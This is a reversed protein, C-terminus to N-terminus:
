RVLAYQMITEQTAEEKTLTATLKGASFVMIRDCLGLLEPMETSYIIVALGQAAMKNIFQYIEFKAGVDVGRTPEELILVKYNGIMWRGLLVKQQNGGSLEGAKARIGSTKINLLEVMRNSERIEAKTDLLGTKQFETKLSSVTLNYILNQNLFLGQTKRDEPLFAIGQAMSAAPSIIRLAEGGCIAKGKTVGRCLGFLTKTVASAGSSDLGAFGLVEGAHLSFSVDSFYSGLSLSEVKLVTKAVSSQRTPYLDKLERGIMLSVLTSENCSENNDLTSILSGDRLVTVRDAIRFVENLRHSIYIITTRNRKLEDIMRFLQAMEEENLNATPEDMIVVSAKQGFARVIEVMKRASIALDKMNLNAEIKVDMNDLLEQAERRLRKWDIFPTGKIRPERGLFINEAVSMEPIEQIEQFLTIIGARQAANPTNFLVKQGHLFLSGGDARYVGSIIKILTSKGAGNEGVLAHLEGEHLTLDIDRLVTNGAFKKVIGKLEFITKM